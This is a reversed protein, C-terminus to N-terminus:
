KNLLMVPGKHPSDIHSQHNGECLTRLAALKEMNMIVDDFPFRKWTVPRKHRFIVPSRNIGRVFALSASSQHKKQDASSYVTSYVITFSTISVGGRGNHRWQLADLFDYDYNQHQKATVHDKVLSTFDAHM